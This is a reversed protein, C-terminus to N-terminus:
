FSATIRVFSFFTGSAWYESIQNSSKEKAILPKM